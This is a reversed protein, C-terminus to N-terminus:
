PTAQFPPTLMMNDPSPTEENNMADLSPLTGTPTMTLTPSPTPTHTPTLSPRKTKTMTPISALTARVDDTAKRYGSFYGTVSGLALCLISVGIIGFILKMKITELKTALDSLVQNKRVLEEIKKTLNSIQVQQYTQISSSTARSLRERLRSAIEEEMQNTKPPLFQIELFSVDDDKRSQAEKVLTELQAAGIGPHIKEEVEELGDSYAVISTIKTLDTSYSYIKGIVGEKSSWVEKHQDPNKGWGILTTLEKDGNFIRIRANGLWFLLVLGNPHKPSQPWIIGAVFNSQSGYQELQSQQAIKLLPDSAKILDNSVLISTALNINADLEERLKEALQNALNSLPSKVERNVDNLNSFWSLLVEGLIQSGIDGFFSSGVGDCLSFIARDPDLSSIIYDESRLNLKADEYKRYSAYRCAFPGRIIQTLRIERSQDSEILSM